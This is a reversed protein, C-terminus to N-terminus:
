PLLAVRGQDTLLWCDRGELVIATLPKGHGAGTDINATGGFSFANVSDDGSGLNINEIEDFRRRVTQLPLKERM